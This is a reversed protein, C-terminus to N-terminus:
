AEFLGNREIYEDRRRLSPGSNQVYNAVYSAAANGGYEKGVMVLLSVEMVLFADSLKLFPLRRNCSLSIPPGSVLELFTGGCSRVLWLSKYTVETVGVMKTEIVAGIRMGVPNAATRCIAPQRQITRFSYSQLHGASSLSWAPFKVALVGPRSYEEEADAVM